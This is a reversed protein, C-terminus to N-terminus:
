RIRDRSTQPSCVQYDVLKGSFTDRVFLTTGFLFHIAVMVHSAHIASDIAIALTVLIAMILFFGKPLKSILLELQTKIKNNKIKIKPINLIGHNLLIIIGNPSYEIM